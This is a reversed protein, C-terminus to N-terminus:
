VNILKISQGKDQLIRQENMHGRRVFINQGALYSKCAKGDYPLCVPKSFSEKGAFTQDIAAYADGPNM